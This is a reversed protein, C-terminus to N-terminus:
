PEPGDTTALHLETALPAVIWRRITEADSVQGREELLNAMSAAEAIADELAQRSVAVRQAPVADDSM